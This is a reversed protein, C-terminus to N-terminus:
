PLTEKGAEPWFYVMLDPVSFAVFKCRLLAFAGILREQHCGPADAVFIRTAFNRGRAELQFL